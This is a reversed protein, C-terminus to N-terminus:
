EALSRIFAIVNDMDEGKLAHGWPTMMPSKGVAAGGDRIVTRLYEDDVSAQWDPSSLNAPKPNLGAAAPGDGHGNNGHCASCLQRFKAAGADADAAVAATNMMFALLTALCFRSIM